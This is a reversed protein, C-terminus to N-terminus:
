RSENKPNFWGSKELERLAKRIAKVKKVDILGQSNYSHAFDALAVALGNLRRVFQEEEDAPTWPRPEAVPAINQRCWPCNVPPLGGHPPAGSATQFLLSLLATALM